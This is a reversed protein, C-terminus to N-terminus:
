GSVLTRGLLYFDRLEDRDLEIELSDRGVAVVYAANPQPEFCPFRKFDHGCAQGVDTETDAYESLWFDAIGALARSVVMADGSRLGADFTIWHENDFLQTEEEVPVRRGTVVQHLVRDSLQGGEPADPWTEDSAELRGALVSFTLADGLPGGARCVDALCGFWARCRSAPTGAAFELSVTQLLWGRLGNTRGRSLSALDDLCNGLTAHLSPALLRHNNQGGAIRQRGFEPTTDLLDSLSGVLRKVTHGGM